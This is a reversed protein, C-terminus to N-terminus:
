ELRNAASLVRVENYSVQRQILALLYDLPAIGINHEIGFKFLEKQLLLLNQSPSGSWVTHMSLSLQKFHNKHHGFTSNPQHQGWKLGNEKSWQLINQIIIWKAQIAKQYNGKHLLSIEWQQGHALPYLDRVSM